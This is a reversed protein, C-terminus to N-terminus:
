YWVLRVRVAALQLDSPRIPQSKCLCGQGFTFAKSNVESGFVLVFDARNRHSPPALSHGPSRAVPRVPLCAHPRAPPVRPTTRVLPALAPMGSPVRPDLKIWDLAALYTSVRVLRDWSGERKLWM